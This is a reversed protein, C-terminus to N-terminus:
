PDSQKVEGGFSITNRIKDGKQTGIILRKKHGFYEKRSKNEYTLTDEEMPIIPWSVTLHFQRLEAFLELSFSLVVQVIM